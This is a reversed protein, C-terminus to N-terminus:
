HSEVILTIHLKLKYFANIRKTTYTYDLVYKRQKVRLRVHTHSVREFSEHM